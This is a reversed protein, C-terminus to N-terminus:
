VGRIRKPYSYTNSRSMRPRPVLHTHTTLTVGRSRKVGTSLVGPVWQVPPQTPGLAPRSVSALSFYNRRQRPNFRSRGTTCGTALCYVTQAVRGVVICSAKSLKLIFFFCIKSQPHKLVPNYPSYKSWLPILHRSFPSLQVILLKM